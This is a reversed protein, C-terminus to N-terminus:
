AAIEKLRKTLMAAPHRIEGLKIEGYLQTLQDRFMREGRAPDEDSLIRLYKRWTNLARTTTDGTLAQAADLVPLRMLDEYSRVQAAGGTQAPHVPRAAPPPRRDHRPPAEPTTTKPWTIPEFQALIDSVSPPATKRKRYVESVSKILKHSYLVRHTEWLSSDFEDWRILDSVIQMFLDPEVLCRSAYLEVQVDDRLAIALIESGGIEELIKFWVAYGDNGYKRELLGMKRGHAVPHPFWEVSTRKHNPM